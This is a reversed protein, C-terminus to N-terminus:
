DKNIIKYYVGFTAYNLLADIESPATLITYRNNKIKHYGELVITKLNLQLAESYWQKSKGEYITALGTEMATNGAGFLINTLDDIYPSILSYISKKNKFGKIKFKPANDFKNGIKIIDILIRTITNYLAIDSKDIIIKHNLLNTINDYLQPASMAYLKAFLKKIQSIKDQTINWYSIFNWLSNIDINFKDFDDNMYGILVENQRCFYVMLDNKKTIIINKIGSRDTYPDLEPYLVVFIYGYKKLGIIYAYKGPQDIQYKIRIENASLNMDRTKKFCGTKIFEYMADAFTKQM